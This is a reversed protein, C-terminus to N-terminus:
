APCADMEWGWWVLTFGERMLYGDGPSALANRDALPPPAGNFTALALKNGRNNVEFFLM